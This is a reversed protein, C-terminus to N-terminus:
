IFVKPEGQSVLRTRIVDIPQSTLVAITAALGGCMFNAYFANNEKHYFYRTITEFWFFQSTLFAFSLIQGTLHGKWFALLGEERLITKVTQTIGKYKSINSKRSIPEYQVKKLRCINNFLHM